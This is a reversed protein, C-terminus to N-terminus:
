FFSWLLFNWFNIPYIHNENGWRWLKKNICVIGGSYKTLLKISLELFTKSLSTLYPEFGKSHPSKINLNSVIAKSFIELYNKLARINSRSFSNLPYRKIFHDTRDNRPSASAIKLITMGLQALFRSIAVCM